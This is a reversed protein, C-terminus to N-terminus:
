NILSVYEIIVTKVYSLLHKEQALLFNVQGLIKAIDKNNELKLVAKALSEYNNKPITVGNQNNKFM